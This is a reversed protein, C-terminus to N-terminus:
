LLASKLLRFSSKIGSLCISTPGIIISGMKWILFGLGLRNLSRDQPLRSLFSLPPVRPGSAQRQLGKADRRQWGGHLVTPTSHLTSHSASHGAGAVGPHEPRGGGRARDWKRREAEKPSHWDKRIGTPSLTRKPEEVGCERSRIIRGTLPLNRPVTVAVGM